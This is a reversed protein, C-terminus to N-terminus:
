FERIPKEKNKPLENEKWAQQLARNNGYSKVLLLADDMWHLLELLSRFAVRCDMEVWELFGQWDSRHRLRVILHFTCLPRGEYLIIQEDMQKREKVWEQGIREEQQRIKKRDRWLYASKESPVGAGFLSKHVSGSPPIGTQQFLEELTFILQTITQFCKVSDLAENELTGFPQRQEYHYIRLISSRCLNSAQNKQKKM